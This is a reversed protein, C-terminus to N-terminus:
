FLYEKIMDENENVILHKPFDISKLVKYANSFNGVDYSIHADSGILIAVQHKICYKLMELVTTEANKRSAMPNFSSNNVELLTKTEKSALVIKEYDLPYRSDDPHGIVKVRPHLMAKIIANTNEELTGPELIPPHLSAIAYDLYKMIFDDIDVNGDYDLINAEIGKLIRIGDITDPIVKMNVFHFLHPAGPMTPAHDSVGMYKLNNKQAGKINEELSSYAHGSSITHTHIDIM